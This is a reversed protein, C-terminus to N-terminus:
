ILEMFCKRTEAPLSVYVSYRLLPAGLDVSKDNLTENIKAGLETLTLNDNSYERSSSDLVAFDILVSGQRVDVVVIRAPDIGLLYAVRDVFTGEGGSDYFETVTSDLALSVHVANTTIIRVIDTSKVVFTLRRQLWEYTNTGSPDHIGVTGNKEPIVDGDNVFINL